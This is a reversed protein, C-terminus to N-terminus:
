VGAVGPHLRHKNIVIGFRSYAGDENDSVRLFEKLHADLTATTAETSDDLKHGSLQTGTSGASFVFNCNLGEDAATFGTAGSQAEFVAWPDVIVLHNTLTSVAGYDQSVGDYLTTGATGGPAINGDAERAVLDGRFVATGQAADKVMQRTSPAGGHLSNLFRLGFARDYNAM